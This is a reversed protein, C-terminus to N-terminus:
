MSCSTAEFMLLFSFRSLSLFQEGGEHMTTMLWARVSFFSFLLLISHRGEDLSGREAKLKVQKILM